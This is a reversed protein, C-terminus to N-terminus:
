GICRKRKEMYEFLLAKMQIAVNKETENTLESFFDRYHTVRLLEIRNNGESILDKINQIMIQNQNFSGQIMNKIIALDNPIVRLISCCEDNGDFQLPKTQAILPIQSAKIKIETDQLIQNLYDAQQIV